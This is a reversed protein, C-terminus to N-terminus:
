QPLQFNTRCSQNKVDNNAERESGQILLLFQLETRELVALGGGNCLVSIM